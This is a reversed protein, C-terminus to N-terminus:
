IAIVATRQCSVEQMNCLVAEIYCISVIVGRPGMPEATMMTMRPQGLEMEGACAAIGRESQDLVASSFRDGISRPDGGGAGISIPLPVLAALKFDVVVAKKGKESKRLATPGKLRSYPVSYLLGSRGIIPSVGPPHPWTSCDSLQAV